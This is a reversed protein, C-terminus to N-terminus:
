FFSKINLIDPLYIMMASIIAQILIIMLLRFSANAKNILKNMRQEIKYKREKILQSKFGELEQKIEGGDQQQRILRMLRGVEAIERFERAIYMVGNYEGYTDLYDICVDTFELMEKSTTQKAFSKLLQAIPTKARVTLTYHLMLYLDFFNKRIEEDKSAVINRVIMMPLIYWLVTGGVIILIGFTLNVFMLVVLGILQTSLTGVKCCANFEEPTMIRNGGPVKVGARRLNYEIYERRSASINLGSSNVLKTIKRLTNNARLIRKDRKKIANINEIEASIGRDLFLSRLGILRMLLMIFIVAILIIILSKIYPLNRIENIAQENLYKYSV